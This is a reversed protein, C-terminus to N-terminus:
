DHQITGGTLFDLHDGIADLVYEMGEKSNILYIGRGQLIQVNIEDAIKYLTKIKDEKYDDM